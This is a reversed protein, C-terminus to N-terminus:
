QIYPSRDLFFAELLKRKLNLTGKWDPPLASVIEQDFDFLVYAKLAPYRKASELTQSYWDNPYDPVSYTTSRDDSQRKMGWEAVIFPKGPANQVMWDYPAKFSSEFSASPAQYDDVGVWDVYQAGPFYDKYTGWGTAFYVPTWALKVNSAGVENKVIGHMRKWANKYATPDKAWPQIPAEWGWRLIVPKGFAKAGRAWNRFQNDASGGAIQAATMSGMSLSVMLMQGRKATEQAVTIPFDGKTGAGEYMHFIAPQKGFRNAVWNQTDNITSVQTHTSGTSSNDGNSFIELFGGGNASTPKGFWGWFFGTEPAGYQGWGTTPSTTPAITPIPTPTPSPAPATGAGGFQPVYYGNSVATRYANTTASGSTLAWSSGDQNKNFWFVAKINPYKTAISQYADSIWGPARSDNSSAGTEGILIPKTPHKTQMTSLFSAALWPDDFIASFSNFNTSPWQYGDAGVWDVYNDGPYYNEFYNWKGPQGDAPGRGWADICWVFRVNGAGEARFLDVVHRWARVYKQTADYNAGNTSGAWAYGNGNMEWGWRVLVPKGYAKAGQAFQRYAADNAGGAIGDLNTSGPSLSIMPLSGNAAIAQVVTTPFAGAGVFFNVAGLSKGVINEFGDIVGQAQSQSMGTWLDGPFAGHYAGSAPAYTGTAPLATPVPTPSPNSTATATPTPMPTASTTPLPTPLPTGNPVLSINVTETTGPSLIITTYNNPWLAYGSSTTTVITQAGGPVGSLTYAGNNDTLTKIGTNNVYVSAGPIGKGTNKDLIKGTVTGTGIKAYTLAFDATAVSTKSITVTKAVTNFGPATARVTRTGTPTGWTTYYGYGDAKFTGTQGDVTITAYPVGAKSNLDTVRGKVANGTIAQIRLATEESPGTVVPTSITAIEQSCAVLALSILTLLPRKQSM